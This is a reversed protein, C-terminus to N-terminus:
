LEPGRLECSLTWYFQNAAVGSGQSSPASVTKFLPVGNVSITQLAASFDTLKSIQEAPVTGRLAVKQGRQFAFDTLQMGEPLQTAVAKLSEIAAYKLAVQEQLVQIRAKTVLANTYSGSLGSVQKQLSTKGAEAQWLLGLFVAVGILYVAVLAGLGRMWVSDVFRQRYRATFEAPLLNAHSEGRAARQASLSALAAADAPAAVDVNGESLEGLVRLWVEQDEPAAVLRFRPPNTLWGELEGAWAAKTLADGLEAPWKEPLTLKVHSLSRLEGGYWWAVLCAGAGTSSAPYVWTGDGETKIALIQHLLPMELRDALFGCSELTGLFKEVENRAAILVVVTQMESPVLSRAPVPEVSWVIQAVPLPSIKELALEVMALLEARDAKPFEAVRLFVSGAPLWALNLRPSLLARWDKAVRPGPLADGSLGSHEKDLAAAGDGAVKFCWLRRQDASLELVNCTNPPAPKM